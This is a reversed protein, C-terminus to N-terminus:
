HNACTVSGTCTQTVPKCPYPYPYMNESGRFVRVQPAPGRTKSTIQAPIHAPLCLHACPFTLCTSPRNLVICTNSYLPLRIYSCLLSALPPPPLLLRPPSVLSPDNVIQAETRFPSVCPHPLLTRPPSAPPFPPLVTCGLHHTHV